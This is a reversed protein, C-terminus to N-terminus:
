RVGSDHTLREAIAIIQPDNIPLKFGSYTTAEGAVWDTFYEDYVGIKMYQPFKKHLFALEKARSDYDFDSILNTNLRYYLCSHVIMQRRLQKIRDKVTIAM